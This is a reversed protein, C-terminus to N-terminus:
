PRFDEEEDPSPPEDDPPAEDAPPPSAHGGLDEVAIRQSRGNSFRVVVADEELVLDKAKSLRRWEAKM